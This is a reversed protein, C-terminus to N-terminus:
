PIMRSQTLGLAEQLPQAVLIPSPALVPLLLLAAKTACEFDAPNVLCNLSLSLFWLNLTVPIRRSQVIYAYSKAQFCM